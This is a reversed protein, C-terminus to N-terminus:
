ARAWALRSIGAPGSRKSTEAASSKIRFPRLELSRPDADGCYREQPPPSEGVAGAGRAERKEEYWVCLVCRAGHVVLSEGDREVRISARQEGACREERASEENVREERPISERFRQRGRGFSERENAVGMQHTSDSVRPPRKM